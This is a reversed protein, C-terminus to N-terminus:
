QAGGALVLYSRPAVEQGNYTYAETGYNVVLAGNEYATLAVDEELQEHRVIEKGAFQAVAKQMDAYMEVLSNKWYEYSYSVMTNYETGVLSSVDGYILNFKMSSGTELAKLFAYEYDVTTNLGESTLLIDNQFTM